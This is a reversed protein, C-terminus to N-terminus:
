GSEGGWMDSDIFDGTTVYKGNECTYIFIHTQQLTRGFVRLHQRVVQLYDAEESLPLALWVFVELVGDGTVDVRKLEGYYHPEAAADQQDFLAQIQFLSGGQSLYAAINKQLQHFSENVEEVEESLYIYDLEYNERDEEPFLGYIREFIEAGLVVDPSVQPCVAQSSPIYTATPLGFNPTLTSTPTSTLTQTPTPTASKLPTPTPSYSARKDNTAQVQATYRAWVTPMTEKQHRTATPTFTPPLTVTASPSAGANTDMQSVPTVCATLLILVILLAIRTIQKLIQIM